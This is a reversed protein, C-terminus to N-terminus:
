HKFIQILTLIAIFINVLISFDVFDIEKYINYDINNVILFLNLFFLAFTFLLLVFVRLLLYKYSINRDDEKNKVTIEGKKLKNLIEKTAEPLESITELAETIKSMFKEFTVDSIMSKQKSEVIIPKMEDLFNYKPYIKMGIGDLTAITKGFLYVEVPWDIKAQASVKVIQIFGQTVTYDELSFNRMKSVVKEIETKFKKLNDVGEIQDFAVIYKIAKDIDKNAVAVLLESLLQSQTDSFSGVIGFDLFAFNGKPTIIMNAPHPDGHFFGHIFIQKVLSRTFVESIRKRSVEIGRISEKDNKSDIFIKIFEKVSVGEIFEQTLVNKSTQDWYIKPIKVDKDDKFNERFVEANRGEVVLNLERLTWREFEKIFNLLGLKKIFSSVNLVRGLFKLVAIDRKIINRINPRLVKVAVKTGDKLYGAHVQALSAAGIPHIDINRFHDHLKINLGNELLKIYHEFPLIEGKDLLEQLEQCYGQPLFDYRLSLMQGFKIFTPGLSQLKRRLKIATKKTTQRKKLDRAISPLLPALTSSIKFLRIIGFM